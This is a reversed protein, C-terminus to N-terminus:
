SERTYGWHHFGGLVSNGFVVVLKYIMTMYNLTTFYLYKM